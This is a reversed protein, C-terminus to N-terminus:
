RISVHRSVHNQIVKVVNDIEKEFSSIIDIQLLSVESWKRLKGVFVVEVKKSTCSKGNLFNRIMCSM